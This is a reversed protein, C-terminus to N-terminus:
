NFIIGGFKLILDINHRFLKSLHAFSFKSNVFKFMDDIQGNVVKEFTYILHCTTAQKTSIEFCIFNISMISVGFCKM